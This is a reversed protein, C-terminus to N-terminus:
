ATQKSMRNVFRRLRVLATVWLGLLAVYVFIRTDADSMSSANMLGYVPAVLRHIFSDQKDVGRLWAELMTFACQDNNLYWHLALFPCLISYVTLTEPSGVFPTVIMYVLFLAHLVSVCTAWM